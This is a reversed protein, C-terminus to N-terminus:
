ATCIVTVPTDLHGPKKHCRQKIGKIWPHNNITGRKVGLYTWNPQYIIHACNYHSDRKKLLLLESVLDKRVYHHLEISFVNNLMSHM